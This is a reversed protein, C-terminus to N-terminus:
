KKFRRMEYQASIVFLHHEDINSKRSFGQDNRRIVYYNLAIIGASYCSHLLPVTANYKCNVVIRDM